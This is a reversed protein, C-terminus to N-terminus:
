VAGLVLRQVKWNRTMFEKEKKKQAKMGNVTGKNRIQDTLGAPTINSSGSSDQSFCSTLIANRVM